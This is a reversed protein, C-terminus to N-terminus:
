ENQLDEIDMGLSKLVELDFEKDKVLHRNFRNDEKKNEILKFGSPSLFVMECTKEIEMLIFERYENKKKENMEPIFYNSLYVAVDYDLDEINFGSEKLSGLINYLYVMRNEINFGVVNKSLYSNIADKIEM